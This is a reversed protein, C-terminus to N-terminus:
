SEKIKLVEFANHTTTAAIVEFAENRLQALFEAIIKINKPHNKQGRLTQPPLFPTDTELVISELSIDTCIKRLENNKPYTLTGGIGLKYGLTISFEAFEENESFCHVIGRKVQGKYEEMMRATEERADRTHIVLALDHELALEIQAKFVDYQLKIDFNPYHRDFGCEGIAVIKNKEKHAILKKFEALDQKWNKTADNPHIGLSAFNKEYKKALAVANLSDMLTTGVQLIYLVNERAAADIFSQALELQSQSLLINFQNSLLIDLHCHTDFLM